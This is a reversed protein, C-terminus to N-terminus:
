AIMEKTDKIFYFIPALIYSDYNSTPWHILYKAMPLVHFSPNPSSGMELPFGVPVYKGDSSIYEDGSGL